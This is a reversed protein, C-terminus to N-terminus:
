TIEVCRYPISLPSFVAKRIQEDDTQKEATDALRSLWGLGLELGWPQLRPPKGVYRKWTRKRVRM